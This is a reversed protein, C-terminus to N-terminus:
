WSGGAGGGGVSGGGLEADELRRRPRTYLDYPHNSKEVYLIYDSKIVPNTLFGNINTNDIRAPAVSHKSTYRTKKDGESNKKKPIMAAHDKKKNQNSKKDKTNKKNKRVLKHKNSSKEDQKSQEPPYHRFMISPDLFAGNIFEDQAVDRGYKWGSYPQTGPDNLVPSNKPVEDESIVVLQPINSVDPLVVKSADVIAFNSQPKAILKRQYNLRQNLANKESNKLEKLYDDYGKLLEDRTFGLSEIKGSQIDKVTQTGYKRRIFDLENSNFQLM